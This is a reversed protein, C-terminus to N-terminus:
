ATERTDMAFSWTAVIEYIQHERSRSAELWACVAGVALVGVVVPRIDPLMTALLSGQEPAMCVFLVWVGLATCLGDLMAARTWLGNIHSFSTGLTDDERIVVWMRGYFQWLEAKSLALEKQPLRTGEAGAADAPDAVNLADSGAPAVRTDTDEIGNSVETHPAESRPVSRQTPEIQPARDTRETLPTKGSMKLVEAYHGSARLNRELRETNTDRDPFVVAEFQPLITRRVNRTVGFCVIGMVYTALFGGALLGAPAMGAVSARATDPMALIVGFLAVGGPVFFSLDLLSFLDLVKTIIPELLAKIALAFEGM